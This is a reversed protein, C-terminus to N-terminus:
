QLLKEIENDSIGANKLKERLRQRRMHLANITSGLLTAINKFEYKCQLLSVLLLDSTNSDLVELIKENLHQDQLFKLSSQHLNDQSKKKMTKIMNQIAEYGHSKEKVVLNHTLTDVQKEFANSEATVYRYLNNVFLISEVQKDLLKNKQRAQKHRNRNVVIILTAGVLLLCLALAVSLFIQENLKTKVLEKEKEAINYKKEVALLDASRMKNKIDQQAKNYLKFHKLAEGFNNNEEYLESLNLNITLARYPNNDKLDNYMEFAKKGYYLASDKQGLDYYTKSLNNYITPFVKNEQNIELAQLLSSKAEQHLGKRRYNKGASNLFRSKFHLNNTKEAIKLGIDIYHLASDHNNTMSYNAVTLYACAMQENEKNEIESYLLFAQKMYSIASDPLNENYFTEGTQSNILARLNIDETNNAFSKANLLHEMAKTFKNNEKYVCGSYLNAIAKQRNDDSYINLYQTAKFIMTDKSVDKYTKYKAQVLTVYYRMQYEKSLDGFTIVSDLYILASDPNEVVIKEAIEIYKNEPNKKTCSSLIFCWIIITAFFTIIYTNNNKIM